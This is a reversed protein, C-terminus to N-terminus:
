AATSNPKTAGVFSHAARAISQAKDMGLAKVVRAQEAVAAATYRGRQDLNEPANAWPNTKNGPLKPTETKGYHGPTKGPRGGLTTGFEQATARAQAEGHKTVFAGQATLTRFEGFAGIAEAHLDSQTASFFHPATSKWENLKEPLEALTFLGARFREVVDEIASERVGAIAAAERIKGETAYDIM